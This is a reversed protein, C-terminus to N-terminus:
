ISVQRNQRQEAHSVSKALSHNGRWPQVPSLEVSLRLRAM